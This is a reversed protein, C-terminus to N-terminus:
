EWCWCRRSFCALLTPSAHRRWYRRPPRIRTADDHPKTTPHACRSLPSLPCPGQSDRNTETHIYTPLHSQSLILTFRGSFPLTLHLLRVERTAPQNQQALAILRMAVYFDQIHSPDHPHHYMFSCWVDHVCM